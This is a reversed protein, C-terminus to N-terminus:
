INSFYSNSTSSIQQDDKYVEDESWNYGFTPEQSIQVDTDNSGENNMENDTEEHENVGESQSITGENAIRLTEEM